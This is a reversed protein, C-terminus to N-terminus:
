IVWAKINKVSALPTKNYNQRNQPLTESTAWALRVPYGLSAEFGISGEAESKWTSPNCAHVVM